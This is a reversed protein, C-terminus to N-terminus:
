KGAKRRAAWRAKQTASIKAKQEETMTSKKKGAPKAAAPVAGGKAQAERERRLRQAEALKKRTATSVKHKGRGNGTVPGFAAPTPGTSPIPASGLAAEIEALESQLASRRASLQERLSVFLKLQNNNM